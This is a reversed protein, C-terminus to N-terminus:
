ALQAFPDEGLEQGLVALRCYVGSCTDAAKSARSSRTTRSRIRSPLRMSPRLVLCIRGIVQSTPTSGRVCPEAMKWRPSVCARTVVVSPVALSSCRTSPRISSYLLFNM